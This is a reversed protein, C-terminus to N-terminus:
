PIASPTGIETTLTEISSIKNLRSIREKAYKKLYDDKLSLKNYYEIAKKYNKKEEEINALNMLSSSSIINNKKKLLSSFTESATGYDNLGKELVGKYLLAIDSLPGRKHKSLFKLFQEKESSFQAKDQSYHYSFINQALEEKPTNIARKILFNGILLVLLAGGAIAGGIKIRKPNEKIYLIIKQIAEFLENKRLEKRTIRKIKPM